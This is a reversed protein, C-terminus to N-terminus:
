RYTTPLFLFWYWYYIACWYLAVMCYLSLYVKKRPLSYKAILIKESFFRLVLCAIPAIIIRELRAPATWILVNLLSLNDKFSELLYFRYPIGSSPGDLLGKAGSQHLHSRVVDFMQEYYGPLHSWFAPLAELSKPYIQFVSFLVIAACMAGIVTALTAYLASKVGKLAFYSLAIDPIIFFWIGEFFGWCFGILLAM